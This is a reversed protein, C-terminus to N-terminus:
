LLRRKRVLLVGGLGLIAITAPEPVVRGWLLTVNKETEPTVFGGIYGSGGNGFGLLQLTYARGDIYITQESCPSYFSIHDDSLPRGPDNLTEDVHFRFQFAAAGGGEFSMALLLDVCTCATDIGVPYNLHQLQFIDFPMGVEIEIPPSAVGTFGLGSKVNTSSARGWRVQDQLGSGYGVGANYVYEVQSPAGAVPNLWTGEVHTLVITGRAAEGWALLLIVLVFSLRPICKM